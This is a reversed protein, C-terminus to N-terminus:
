EQKLKQEKKEKLFLHHDLLEEYDATPDDYSGYIGWGTAIYKDCSYVPNGRHTHTYFAPWILLTGRKPQVRRGQWLFETEGEGEPIDNLYLMWAVSRDISSVDNVECHWDHFGGRPPTKQLKIEAFFVNIHNAVWYTEIYQKWSHNVVQEILSACPNDLYLYLQYDHRSLHMRQTEHSGCGSVANCDPREPHTYTNEFYEIIHDCTSKDLVDEYVGIFDNHNM